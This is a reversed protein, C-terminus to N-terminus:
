VRVVTVVNFWAESIEMCADPILCVYYLVLIIFFHRFNSNVEAVKKIIFCLNVQVLPLLLRMWGILM